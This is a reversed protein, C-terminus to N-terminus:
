EGFVRHLGNWSTFRYNISLGNLRHYPVIGRPRMGILAIKEVWVICSPVSWVVKRNEYCTLSLLKTGFGLRVGILICFVMGVVGFFNGFFGLVRRVVSLSVAVPLM